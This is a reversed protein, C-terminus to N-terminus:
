RGEWRYVFSRSAERRGRGLMRHCFVRYDRMGSASVKVKDPLNNL